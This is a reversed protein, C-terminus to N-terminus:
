LGFSPSFAKGPEPKGGEQWVFDDLAFTVPIVAFGENNYDLTTAGINVPFAGRMIYHQVIEGATSLLDLYIAKKYEIPLGSTGLGKDETKNYIIKKWKSFYKYIDGRDNEKVNVTWNDYRTTGGIKIESSLWPINRTETVEVPTATNSVLYTILDSRDPFLVKFMYNRQIDYTKHIVEYLSGPHLISM